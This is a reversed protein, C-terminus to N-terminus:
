GCDGFDSDNDVEGDGFFFKNQNNEINETMWFLKQKAKRETKHKMM